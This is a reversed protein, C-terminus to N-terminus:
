AVPDGWICWTLRGDGVPTVELESVLMEALMKCNDFVAGGTGNAGRRVNFPGFTNILLDFDAGGDMRLFFGRADSVDGLPVDFPVGDQVDTVGSSVRTFGDLVAEATTDDLGFLVSRGEADETVVPNMKHRIRM